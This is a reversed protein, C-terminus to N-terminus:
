IIRPWQSLNRSFLLCVPSKVFFYKKFMACVACWASLISLSFNRKCYFVNIKPRVWPPRFCIKSPYATSFLLFIKKYFITFIGIKIIYFGWFMPICICVRSVWNRGRCTNSVRLTIGASSQFWKKNSNSKKEHFWYWIEKVVCWAWVWFFLM